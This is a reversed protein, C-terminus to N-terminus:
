FEFRFGINFIGYIMPGASIINKEMGNDTNILTWNIKNAYIAKVGVDMFAHEVLGYSFGLAGAVALGQSSSSSPPFGNTSDFYPDFSGTEYFVGNSDGLTMQVQSTALGFGAGIYPIITKQPKSMGDFFDYYMMMMVIDSSVSSAISGSYPVVAPVIDPDNTGDWIIFEGEVGTFLPSTDYRSESLHDWSLEMRVQPSNPLVFGAALNTSLTRVEFQKTIDGLPVYGLPYCGSAALGGNSVLSNGYERCEKETMLVAAYTGAPILDEPPYFLYIMDGMADQTKGGFSQALGGKVSIYFRAGDDKDQLYSWNANANTAGLAVLAGLMIKLLKM